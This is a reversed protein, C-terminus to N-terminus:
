ELRLLIIIINNLKNFKLFDRLLDELLIRNKFNQFRWQLVVKLKNLIPAMKIKLLIMIKIIHKLDIILM